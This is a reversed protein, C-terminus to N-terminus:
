KFLREYGASLRKQYNQASFKEAQRYGNDVMTRLLEDNSSLKEIGAKIDMISYPDVYHVADGGVEPLSGAASTLVPVGLQMAELVPLGFGEYLSPFLLARAGQVLAMLTTFDSYPIRVINPNGNLSEILEKEKEYLWGYKGVLVLKCDTKAQLYAQLLRLVNKKPEIAGYFIFYNKHPLCYHHLVSDMETASKRKIDEPVSLSTYAVEIKAEPIKLIEIADIKSKESDSFIIDADKLSTKVCNAYHKLNMATLQPLKLPILDHLTVVKKFKGKAIPLPSTLHLIDIKPANKPPIIRTAIGTAAALAQSTQYIHALNYPKVSPPVRRELGSTIIKFTSEISHLRRRLGLTSPMAYRFIRILDRLRNSQSNPQNGLQQYFSANDPFLESGRSMSYLASVQHGMQVLNETLNYTYTGIGTPHKLELNYADIMIQM